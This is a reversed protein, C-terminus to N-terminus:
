AKALESSLAKRKAQQYNSKSQTACQLRLWDLTRQPLTGSLQLVKQQQEPPVLLNVILLGPLQPSLIYRINRGVLPPIELEVRKM